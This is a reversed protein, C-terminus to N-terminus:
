GGRPSGSAKGARSGSAKAAASGSAAPSPSPPPTGLSITIGFGDLQPLPVAQLDGADVVAGELVRQRSQSGAAQPGGPSAFPAQPAQPLGSGTGINGQCGVALVLAALGLAHLAVRRVIM